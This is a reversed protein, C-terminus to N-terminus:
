YPYTVYPFKHAPPNKRQGLPRVHGSNSEGESSILLIDWFANPWDLKGELGHISGNSKSFYFAGLHLRTHHDFGLGLVSADLPVM